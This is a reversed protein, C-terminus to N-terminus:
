KIIRVLTPSSSEGLAAAAAASGDDDAGGGGESGESEGDDGRFNDRDDGDCYRSTELTDEVSAGLRLCM